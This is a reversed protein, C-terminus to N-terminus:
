EERAIHGSLVHRQHEDVVRQLQLPLHLLPVAFFLLSPVISLRVIDATLVHSVAAADLDIRMAVRAVVHRGCRTRRMDAAIMQKTMTVDTM